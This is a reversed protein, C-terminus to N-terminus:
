LYKVTVFDKLRNYRTRLPRIRTGSRTCYDHQVYLTRSPALKRIPHDLDLNSMYRKCLDICRSETHHRQKCHTCNGRSRCHAAQHPGNCNFCLRKKKYSNGENLLARFSQANVPSTHYTTVTLVGRKCIRILAISKCMSAEIALRVQLEQPRTLDHVRVHTSRRGRASPMSCNRLTGLSDIRIKM